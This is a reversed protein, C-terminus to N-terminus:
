FLVRGHLKETGKELIQPNFYLNLWIHSKMRNLHLIEHNEVTNIVVYFYEYHTYVVFFFHISNQWFLVENM